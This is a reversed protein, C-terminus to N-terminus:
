SRRDSRPGGGHFRHRLAHRCRRLVRGQFRYRAAAGAAPVAGGGHRRCLHQRRACRGTSVDRPGFGSTEFGRVTEGGKFFSDLLRVDEGLGFIDGGQVKILGVVDRDPLLERYYSATGTTRVFRVDGGVGAFEQTMKAYFGAHPDARSDLTDYILSYFVSSVLTDGEAQCIARSVNDGDNAPNGDDYDCKDDDVDIEQLEIKYGTQVTFDETIPFGFTM